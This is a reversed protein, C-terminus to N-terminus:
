HDNNNEAKVQSLRQDRSQAQPAILLVGQKACCAILIIILHMTNMASWKISVSCTPMSGHLCARAHLRPGLGIRGIRDGASPMIENSVKRCIHHSFYALTNGNLRVQLWETTLSERM